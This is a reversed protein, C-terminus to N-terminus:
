PRSGFGDPLPLRSWRRSSREPEASSPSAAASPRGSRDSRRCGGRDRSRVLYSFSSSWHLSPRIVALRGCPVPWLKRENTERCDEVEAASCRGHDESSGDHQNTGEARDGDCESRTRAGISIQLPSGSVATQRRVITQFGGLREWTIAAYQHRPSGATAAITITAPTTPAAPVRM